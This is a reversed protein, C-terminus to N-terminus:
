YCSYVYGKFLPASKVRLKRCPLQDINFSCSANTARSAATVPPPPLSALVPLRWDTSTGSENFMM